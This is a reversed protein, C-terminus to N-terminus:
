KKNNESWDEENFPDNIRYKEKLESSARGMLKFRFVLDKLNKLTKQYKYKEIYFLIRKELDEIYNSNTDNNMDPNTRINDKM